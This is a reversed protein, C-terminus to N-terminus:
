NCGLDNQSVPDNNPFCNGSLIVEPVYRQLDPDRLGNDLFSVLAEVEEFSLYLPHILPSVKDQPVNANEPVGKNFYDVVALLSRKSSGHFYFPSDGMNYLQPVKFKFMDEERKTFGGRGLNRKDEISTGYVNPNEHLDRVGLAHFEMANLAPGKHCRFCGAKSFFLQAGLKEQNSMAEQDGKLWKQFPAETTLLTRIYASLAFSTTVPSYREEVPFEGFAEDYMALYGLSDLVDRNVVMRHLELGEINQAELGDLGLFNVETVEEDMWAYETDVNVGNAGFKGSWTSNTVYTVNLMSLPRAGQVDLEDEHYDGMQDREEGNFGFGIGGDAIGQVRGPMFGASPIHCTACSYTGKGTEHMADLALGTEFFLMKGLAVKHTTLPNGVGQPIADLNDSDPLVYHDIEGTPSLKKLTRELNTDLPNELKDQTCAFIFLSLVLMTFFKTM